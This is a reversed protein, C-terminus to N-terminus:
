NPLKARLIEQGFRDAEAGATAAEGLAFRAICVIAAAAVLIPVRPVFDFAALMVGLMAVALLVWGIVTYGLKASLAEERQPGLVNIQAVAYDEVALAWAEHQAQLAADVAIKYAVSLPMKAATAASETRADREAFLTQISVVAELEQDVYLPTRVKRM